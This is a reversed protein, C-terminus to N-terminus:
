SNGRGGPRGEGPKKEIEEALEDDLFADPRDALDPLVKGEVASKEIEARSHLFRARPLVAPGDVSTRATQEAPPASNIEVCGRFTAGDLIRADVRFQENAGTYRHTDHTRAAAIAHQPPNM